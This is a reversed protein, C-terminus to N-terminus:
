SRTISCIIRGVPKTSHKRFEALINEAAKTSETTDIITVSQAGEVMYVCSAAYGVAGWIGPRLEIVAKEFQTANHAILAPHPM